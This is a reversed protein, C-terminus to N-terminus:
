ETEPQEQEIKHRGVQVLRLLTVLGIGGLMNGLMAWGAVQAWLLYGYDAGAHLAAFLEISVVIVHNLPSAALVFAIAVAAIIKAVISETAHQMWTMLTIAAGGVLAAAFSQWGIGIDVWHRATEIADPKLNPFGGIVILMMVWGAVLNSTATTVWLRLLRLPHSRDAALASIPILFDETFLESRALTISIFGISFALSALLLNDSEHLVILFAFVGISVDVGGVAGTALLESWTRELRQEGESVTREFTRDVQATM